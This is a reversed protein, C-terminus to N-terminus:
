KAHRGRAAARRGARPVAARRHHQHRHRGPPGPHPAGAAGADSLLDPGITIPYSREGLDVNLSITSQENMSLDAAPAHARRSAELADLQDLITQVMSQVNPRGTDIVLEAIERYLPERQAMLEELRRRPDATQLLPRNKDHSTRLM